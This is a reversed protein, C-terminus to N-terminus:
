VTKCDLLITLVLPKPLFDEAVEVYFSSLDATQVKESQSKSFQELGQAYQQATRVNVKNRVKMFQYFEISIAANILFLVAFIM